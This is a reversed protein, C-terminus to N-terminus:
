VPGEHGRSQGEARGGQFIPFSISPLLSAIRSQWNFLDSARASEFGAYGTLMFRPYFDATAVGIQANAVVVNQEAEAVDPRGTSCTPRCVPRCAPRRRRKWRAYPSRSRHRPDGACSPLLMNSTRGRESSTGSSPRRRRSCRQSRRISPSRVSSDMEQAAGFPHPGTGSLGRRDASLILDQADLSRINYYLTAVDGPGHARVVVAEDDAAAEATARSSEFAGASAAGSTSRAPCIPLSSGTASRRAGPVSPSVPSPATAREWFRTRSFAPNASIWPYLYSGAVRALARAQDVRAVAQRLTQNSANAAAILQTLEPDAYLEWWGTEPLALPSPGPARVQFRAAGRGAAAFLEPRGHVSRDDRRSASRWRRRLSGAATRLRGRM